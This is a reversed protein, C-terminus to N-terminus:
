SEVAPSEIRAPRREDVREPRAGTPEPSGGAPVPAATSPEWPGPSPEPFVLFRRGLFNFIFAVLTATAKAMVAPTGARILTITSLLDIAGVALVLASYAVFEGRGSWRARRRFLLTVCLWYNLAAAVAFAAPAAIWPSAMRSFAWFLFVNALACLAGVALYGGFQIPLPAHPMNYRAICYLARFGDTVAIKKGEAYTRGAYSVSAEYIRLRMRAIKAVIEPEFGFRKERLDIQQLIERRFVKYCSEMDTLNLDTFMNSLLTLFRNGVSHWFYLVRHPEGGLFRSGIVVDARGEILPVLLRKLDQPDYEVDADQVAVFDGTAHRFGTHLAAGKGQNQAHVLVRIQPHQRALAAAIERTRDTSADDVILIELSLELEEIALVREVCTALTPAENYAPIVVSLTTV